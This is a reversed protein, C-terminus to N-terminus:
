ELDEIRLDSSLESADLFVGNLEGVAAEQEKRVGPFLDYIEDCANSVINEAGQQLIAKQVKNMGQGNGIKVTVGCREFVDGVDKEYPHEYSDLDYCDTELTFTVPVNLVVEQDAGAAKVRAMAKAFRAKLKKLKDSSLFVNRKEESAKEAAENERNRLELLAENYSTAAAEHEAIMARLAEESMKQIKSM